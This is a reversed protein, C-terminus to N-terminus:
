SAKEGQSNRKMKWMKDYVVIFALFLVGTIALFVLYLKGIASHTRTSLEDLTLTGDPSVYAQVQQLPRYLHGQTDSLQCTHEQGNYSLTVIYRPRQIIGINIDVKEISVVTATVTEPNVSIQKTAIFLGVTVSLSIFFLLLFIRMLKKLKM